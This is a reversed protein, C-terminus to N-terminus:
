LKDSYLTSKIQQRAPDQEAWNEEDEIRAVQSVKAPYNRAGPSAVRQRRKRHAKLLKQFCLAM